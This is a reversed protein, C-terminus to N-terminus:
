KQRMLVGPPICVGRTTTICYRYVPAVVLCACDNKHVLHDTIERETNVSNTSGKAIFPLSPKMPMDFILSDSMNSLHSSEGGGKEALHISASFPPPSRLVGEMLISLSVIEQQILGLVISTKGQVLNPSFDFSIIDGWTLALDDMVLSLGYEMADGLFELSIVLREPLHDAHGGAFPQWEHYHEPFHPFSVITHM